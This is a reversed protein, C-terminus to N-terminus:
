GKENIFKRGVYIKRSTIDLAASVANKLTEATEENASCIISVGRVRPMYSTIVLPEESGNKDRVTIYNKESEASQRAEDKSDKEKVESAYEYVMGTDLTVTVTSSADACIGFVMDQIKKELFLCYEEESFEAKGQPETEEEGSLNSIFRLAIGIIGAVFIIKGFKKDSLIKALKEKM